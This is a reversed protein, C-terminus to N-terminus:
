TSDDINQPKRNKVKEKLFNWLNEIVNLDASQAPWDQVMRVAKEEFYKKTSASTHCSANDQQWIYRSSYLVPLADDLIAQYARSDVTGEIRKVFRKGDSRIGGWIMVYPSFKKTKILNRQVLQQNVDIRVFQRRRPLLEIKSEDTFIIKSWDVDNFRERQKCWDLRRKMLKKTLAPKKMAVRGYLRNSRLVRKVTSVSVKEELGCERRLQNATLFSDRRSAIVLM